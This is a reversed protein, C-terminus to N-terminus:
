KSEDPLTRICDPPIDGDVLVEPTWFMGPRYESLPVATVRYTEALLQSAELNRPKGGSGQLYMLAISSLDMDAVTCREEGVTVEDYAYNTRQDNFSMKDDEKRLWCYVIGKRMELGLDAFESIAKLGDNLVEALRSKPVSHILSVQKGMVELGM